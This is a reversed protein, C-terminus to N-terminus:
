VKSIAPTLEEINNTIIEYTAMPKQFPVVNNPLGHFHPKNTTIKQM